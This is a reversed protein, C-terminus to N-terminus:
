ETMTRKIYDLPNKALAVNSTSKGVEPFFENFDEATLITDRKSQKAGKNTEQKIVKWM